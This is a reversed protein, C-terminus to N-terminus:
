TFMTETKLEWSWDSLDFDIRIHKVLPDMKYKKRFEARMKWDDIARGDTGRYKQDYNELSTLYIEAYKTTEVYIAIWPECAFAQCADTLKCRDDKKGQYSFVNVPADEKGVDRTRSKVTIGLRQHNSQHYAVIDLGTYDALIVEFGSRSLWNCILSEGFDGIIKQYRPGKTIEM